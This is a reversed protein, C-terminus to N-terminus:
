DTSIKSQLDSQLDLQALMEINTCTFSQMPPKNCKPSLYM